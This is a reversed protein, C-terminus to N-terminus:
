GRTFRNNVFKDIGHQVRLLITAKGMKEGSEQSPVPNQKKYIREFAWKLGKWKL